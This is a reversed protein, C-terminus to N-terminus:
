ETKQAFLVGKHGCLCKEYKSPHNESIFEPLVEISKKPNPDLFLAFSMRNKSGDRNIVRHKTARIADNTLKQLIYGTNIVFTNPPAPILKWENIENLVELGPLDAQYIMTIGGFDVHSGAGMENINMNGYSGRQPPYSIFRNVVAPDNFNDVLRNEEIGLGLAIARLIDLALLYTTEVYQLSIKKFGLMNKAAENPWINDGFTNQLGYDFSEKNDPAMSPNLRETYQPTYGMPVKMMLYDPPRIIRANFKEERKMEFFYQAKETTSKLLSESIGHNELIFFGEHVLATVLQKGIKKKDELKAMKWSGWNIVCIKDSMGTSTKAAIKTDGGQKLWEQHSRTCLETIPLLTLKRPETPKKANKISVSYEKQKGKIDLTLEHAYKKETGDIFLVEVQCDFSGWGSKKIAFPSKDIHITNPSFSSHLNFTVRKVIGFTDIVFLEWDWIGPDKASQANNGIVITESHSTEIPLNAAGLKL